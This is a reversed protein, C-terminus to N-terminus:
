MRYHFSNNLSYYYTTKQLFLFVIKRTKVVFYITFTFNIALHM